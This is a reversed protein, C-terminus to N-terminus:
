PRLRADEQRAPVPGAAREGLRAVLGPERQQAHDVTVPRGERGQHAVGLDRQGFRVQRDPFAVRLQHLVFVSRAAIQVGIRASSSRVRSSSGVTM